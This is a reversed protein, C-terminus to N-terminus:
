LGIPNLRTIEQDILDDDAEWITGDTLRVKSVWVLHHLEYAYDTKRNTLPVSHRLDFSQDGGITQVWNANLKFGEDNFTDYSDIALRIVEINARSYGKFLLNAFDQMEPEECQQYVLNDIHVPCQDGNLIHMQRKLNTQAGTKRDGIWTTLRGNQKNTIKYKM